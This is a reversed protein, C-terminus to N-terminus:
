SDAVRAPGFGLLGDAIAEIVAPEDVSVTALRDRVRQLERHRVRPRADARLEDLLGHPLAATTSRDDTAM